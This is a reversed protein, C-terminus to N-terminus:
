IKLFLIPYISEFMKKLCCILVILFYHKNTSFKKLFDFVGRANNVRERLEAELASLIIINNPLQKTIKTINYGRSINQLRNKIYRKGWATKLYKERKKADERNICAEYYILRMPRRGKTSFIKGKQHEFFRKQLNNTWGVYFKKDKKSQPVYVFEM